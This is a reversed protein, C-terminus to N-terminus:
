GAALAGNPKAHLNDPALARELLLHGRDVETDLICVRVVNAVSREVGFEEVM